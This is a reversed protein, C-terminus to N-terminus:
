AFFIPDFEDKFLNKYPPPSIYGGTCYNIAWSGYLLLTLWHYFLSFINGRNCNNKCRSFSSGRMECSKISPDLPPLLDGPNQLGTNPCFSYSKLLDNLDEIIYNNIGNIKTTINRKSPKLWIFINSYYHNGKSRVGKLLLWWIQM